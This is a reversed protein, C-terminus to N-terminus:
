VHRPNGLKRQITSPSRTKLKEALDREEYAAIIVTVPPTFERRRVPKGRFKSLLMLLLPYGAYTYAIAVVAIWFIIDAYPRMEAM